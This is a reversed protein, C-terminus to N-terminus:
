SEEKEDDQAPQPPIYGDSPLPDPLQGVSVSLPNQIWRAFIEFNEQDLKRALRQFVIYEQDFPIKGLEKLKYYLKVAEEASTPDYDTFTPDLKRLKM